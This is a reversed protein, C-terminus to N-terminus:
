GNAQGKEPPTENQVFAGCKVCLEEPEDNMADYVGYCFVRKDDPGYEGTATHAIKCLPDLAQGRLQARSVRKM